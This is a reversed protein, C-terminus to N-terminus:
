KRARECKGLMKQSESYQLDEWYRALSDLLHPPEFKCDVARVDRAYVSMGLLFDINKSLTCRELYVTRLCRFFPNGDEDEYEPWRLSIEKFDEECWEVIHMTTVRSLNPWVYDLSAVMPLFWVETLTDTFLSSALEIVADLYNAGSFVAELPPTLGEARSGTDFVSKGDLLTAM